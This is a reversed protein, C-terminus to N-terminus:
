DQQERAIEAAIVARIRNIEARQSQDIARVASEIGQEVRRDIRNDLGSGRRGWSAAGWRDEM